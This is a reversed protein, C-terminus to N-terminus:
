KPRGGSSILFPGLQWRWSQDSGADAHPEVLYFAFSFFLLKASNSSFISYFSYFSKNKDLIKVIESLTDHAAILAKAPRV